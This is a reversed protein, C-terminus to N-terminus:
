LPRHCSSTRDFDILIGNGIQKLLGFIIFWQFRKSEQILDSLTLIALNAASKGLALWDSGAAVAAM